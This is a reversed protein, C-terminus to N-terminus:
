RESNNSVTALIFDEGYACFCKRVCSNGYYDNSYCGDGQGNGPKQWM